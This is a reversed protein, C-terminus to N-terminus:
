PQESLLARIDNVYVSAATGYQYVVRLRGKQDILYSATSHDVGSNGHHGGGHRYTLGYEKSIRRLTADDGQLGIFGEGFNRLYAALVDPTDNAPDVSILVFHVRVGDPGLEDRVRRFEGLTIPCYDPCRTYGFYLLVPQGHLDRLSLEGGTSAPLTFDSLVTPPDIKTPTTSSPGTVACAGLLWPAARWPAARRAGVVAVWRRGVLRPGGRRLGIGRPAKLWEHVKASQSRYCSSKM